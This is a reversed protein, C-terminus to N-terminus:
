RPRLSGYGINSSLLNVQAGICRAIEVQAAADSLKSTTQGLNRFDPDYIYQARPGTGQIYNRESAVNGQPDQMGYIACRRYCLTQGGAGTAAPQGPITEVANDQSWGFIECYRDCMKYHLDAPREVAGRKDSFQGTLDMADEMCCGDDVSDLMLFASPIDFTVAEETLHRSIYERYLNATPENPRNTHPLWYRNRGRSPADDGHMYRVVNLAHLTIIAKSDKVYGMTDKRLTMTINRYEATAQAQMLPATIMHTYSDSGKAFMVAEGMEYMIHPAVHRGNLFLPLNREICTNFNRLDVGDDNIKIIFPPYTRADGDRTAVAAKADERDKKEREDPVRDILQEITVETDREGMAFLQRWFPVSEPGDYDKYMEMCDRLSITTDRGSNHRITVVQHDYNYNKYVDTSRRRYVEHKPNWPIPVYEGHQKISQFLDIPTDRDAKLTPVLYPEVGGSKKLGSALATGEGYLFLMQRGDARFNRQTYKRRCDNGIDALSGGAPKNMRAWRKGDNVLENICQQKTRRNVSIDRQTVRMEENMGAEKIAHIAIYCEQQGIALGIQAIRLHLNKRGEPHQISEITLRIAKGMRTFSRTEGRGRWIMERYTIEEADPDMMGPDWEQSLMYATFPVDVVRLTGLKHVVDMFRDATDMLIGQNFMRTEFQLIQDWTMRYKSVEEGEFSHYYGHPQVGPLHSLGDASNTIKNSELSPNHKLLMNLMNASPANGRGWVSGVPDFGGTSESGFPDGRHLPGRPRTVDTDVARILRSEADHIHHVAEAAQKLAEIVEPNTMTNAVNMEEYLPALKRMVEDQTRDNSAAGAKVTVVGDDIRSRDIGFGGPVHKRLVDSSACVIRDGSRMAKDLSAYTQQADAVHQRHLLCCLEAVSHTSAALEDLQKATARTVRLGTTASAAGEIKAFKSPQGDVFVSQAYREDTPIEAITFKNNDVHANHLREFQTASFSM